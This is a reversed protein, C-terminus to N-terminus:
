CHCSSCVIQTQLPRDDTRDQETDQHYGGVDVTGHQHAGVRGLGGRYLRAPWLVRGPGEHVGSGRHQLPHALSLHLTEQNRMPQTGTGQSRIPQNGPLLVREERTSRGLEVPDGLRLPLTHPSTVWSAMLRIFSSKLGHLQSGGRGWCM